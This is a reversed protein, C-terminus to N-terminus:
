KKFIIKLIIQIINLRTTNLGFEVNVLLSLEGTAEMEEHDSM